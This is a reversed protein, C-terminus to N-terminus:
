PGFIDLIPNDEGDFEAKSRSTFKNMNLEKEIMKLLNRKAYFDNLDKVYPYIDLGLRLADIALFITDCCFSSSGLLYFSKKSKLDSFYSLIEVNDSACQIGKFEFLDLFPAANNLEKLNEIRVIGLPLVDLLNKHITNNLMYTLQYRTFKLAVIEEYDIGYKAAVIAQSKFENPISQDLLASFDINSFDKIKSTILDSIRELVNCKNPLILLSQEFISRAKEILEKGTKRLIMSYLINVIASLTSEPTRENYVFSMDLGFKLCEIIKNNCYHETHKSFFADYLKIDGNIHSVGFAELLIETSSKKLRKLEKLNEIDVLRDFMELEQIEFLDIHDFAWRVEDSSGRYCCVGLKYFVYSQAEIDLDNFGIEFLKEIDIGENVLRIIDFINPILLFVEKHKLDKIKENLYKYARLYGPNDNMRVFKVYNFGNKKLEALIRINRHDIEPFLLDSMDVGKKIYSRIAELQLAEFHSDKSFSMDIGQITGLNIQYLERKDEYMDLWDFDIGNELNNVLFTALVPDINFEQILERKLLYKEERSLECGGLSVCLGLTSAAVLIIEKLDERKEM